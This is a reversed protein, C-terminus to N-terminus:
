VLACLCLADPAIGLREGEQVGAAHVVGCIPWLGMGAQMHTGDQVDCVLRLVGKADLAELLRDLGQGERPIRGSRSTLLVM